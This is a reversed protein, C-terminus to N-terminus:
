WKNDKNDIIRKLSELYTCFVHSKMGLNSLQEKPIDIMYEKALRRSLESIEMLEYAIDDRTIPMFSSRDEKLISKVPETIVKKLESETLRITNRFFVKGM